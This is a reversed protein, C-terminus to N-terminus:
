TGASTTGGCSIAPADTTLRSSSRTPVRVSRAPDLGHGAGPQKIVYDFVGDGDLDCIGVRNFQYDGQLTISRVRNPPTNPALSATESPPLERGRSLVRVFWVNAKDKPAAADVLNTSTVLPKANVRVPSGGDTRRYVNFAVDAPDEKLLRWGLYVQGQDNVVSILGRNFAEETQTGACLLAVLLLACMRVSAHPMPTVIKFWSSEFLVFVRFNECLVRAPTAHAPRTAALAASLM